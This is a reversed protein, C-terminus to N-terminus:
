LPTRIQSYAQKNNKTLCFVAYSIRMLSQLESTHEESRARTVESEAEDNSKGESPGEEAQEDADNIQVRPLIIAVRKKKELARKIATVAHPREKTDILFTDIHKKVPQENLTFLTMGEYLSLALSRPVPTASVDVTHTWPKVMASRLATHLKHQEDCILLNPASRSKRAITALSHTGVLISEHSHIVGGEEIREVPVQDGFYEIVENAIQDALLMTPALIAVKGGCRYAAIAPAIYAITKGAGVEGSLLGNLPKSGAM